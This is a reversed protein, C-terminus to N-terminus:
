LKYPARAESWMYDLAANLCQNSVPLTSRVKTKEILTLVMSNRRPFPAQIPETERNDGVCLKMVMRSLM